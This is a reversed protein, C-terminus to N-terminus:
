EYNRRRKVLNNSIVIELFLLFISLILFIPWYEIGSRAQTIENTINPM